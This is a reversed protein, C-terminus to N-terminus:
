EYPLESKPKQPLLNTTELIVQPNKEQLDKHWNDVAIQWCEPHKELHEDLAIKAQADTITPDLIQFIIGRYPFDRSYGSDHIVEMQTEPLPDPLLATKWARSFINRLWKM